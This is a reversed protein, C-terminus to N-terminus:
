LGKILQAMAVRGKVVIDLDLHINTSEIYRTDSNLLYMPSIIKDQPTM